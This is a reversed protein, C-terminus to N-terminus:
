KARWLELVMGTTPTTVVYHDGRFEILCMRLLGDIARQANKGKGVYNGRAIEALVYQEDPTLENVNM